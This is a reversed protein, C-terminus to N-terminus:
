DNFLTSWRMLKQRKLESAEEIGSFSVVDDAQLL